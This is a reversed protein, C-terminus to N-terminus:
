NGNCPTHVASTTQCGIEAFDSEIVEHGGHLLVRSNDGAHLRVIGTRPPFSVTTASDMAPQGLDLLLEIFREPSIIEMSQNKPGGLNRGM